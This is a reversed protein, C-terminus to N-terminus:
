AERKVGLPSSPLCLNPCWEVEAQRAIAHLQASVPPAGSERAVQLCRTCIFQCHSLCARDPCGGADGLRAARRMCYAQPDQERLSDRYCLLASWFKTLSLVPRANISVRVGPLNIVEGILRVAQDLYEPLDAFTAVYAREKGEGETHFAPSLRALIRATPFTAADSEPIWVSLQM